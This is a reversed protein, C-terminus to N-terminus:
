TAQGALSRPLRITFVTGADASSEIQITGDHGQVIERVIFLGLGMSTKSRVDPENVPSPVQVLPEFIVQLAQSPIPAGFNSVKLVISDREGDASVTIPARRDGHQVANNLLNSLAQQLKEGDAETSLDGSTHLVLWGDPVANQSGSRHWLSLVSARLARFEGVVQVLDFGARLRLTGHAEAASNDSAASGAINKSKTSQEVATQGSEMDRAITLLIEGCHDRLALESMSKGAPLTRGFEEWDKVIEDLNDKIFASFKM